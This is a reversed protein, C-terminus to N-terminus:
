AASKLLPEMKKIVGDEILIDLHGNDGAPNVVQGGRIMLTAM